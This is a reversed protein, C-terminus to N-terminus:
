QQGGQAAAAGSTTQQQTAPQPNLPLLPLPERVGGEPLIIKEMGPQSLIEEMTELYLRKRTIDEAQIYAEYIDEFREAEGRAQRVRSEKYAQAANVLEAAAGRAKPIIDNRYAEAENIFRIRDERASAVDKFAEVVEKPPHVDQLKVARVHVGADYRDLIAQLLAQTQNQIELKGDTLAADIRNYGIVERMAAEAAARVTAHQGAVNFLFNKADRIEYQVIFEVNVVNEDGTLMAAEDTADGNVGGVSVRRVETVKLTYAREIPYPWHYDLGEQEETRIYEGFRTIVGVFGPEIRYFGSLLWAVVVAGILVKGLPFKLSRLRNFQNGFQDWDPGKFDGGGGGGGGSGGGGHRKKQENLKDWDWNM